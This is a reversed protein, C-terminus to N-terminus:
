KAAASFSCPAVVVDVGGNFVIVVVIVALAVVGGFDRNRYRNLM